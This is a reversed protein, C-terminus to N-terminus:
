DHVLGVNMWTKTVTASDCGNRVGDTVGDAPSLFQAKLNHGVQYRDVATNVTCALPAPMAGVDQSMTAQFKTSLM